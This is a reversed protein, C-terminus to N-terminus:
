VIGMMYFNSDLGAETIRIPTTNPWTVSQPPTKTISSGAADKLTSAISDAIIPVVISIIIDPIPGLFYLYWPIHAHHSSSPTGNQVFSVEQADANFRTSYSTDISYTMTINAHLDANGAIHTKLNGGSINTSVETIKPHYTIAGAKADPGPLTGRNHITHNSFFFNNQSTGPFSQPMSPLIVNQLFLDSSILIGANNTGTVVNPDLTRELGSIDRQSTVSLIALFSSGDNKGVYAYDSEIPALWSNSAPKAFNVNAFVFSVQAAHEVLYGPLLSYVLSHQETNLHHKPDLLNIPYVLGPGIAGNKAVAKMNFALKKKDAGDPLLTLDIEAVLTVGDLTAEGQGPMSFTGSSIPFNMRLLKGSGGTVIQWAGFTGRMEIGQEDFSFTQPITGNNNALAKNVKDISLAYAIDWGHLDM